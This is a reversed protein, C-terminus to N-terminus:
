RITHWINLSMVIWLSSSQSHRVMCTIILVRAKDCAQSSTGKSTFHLHHRMSGRVIFFIRLIITSYFTELKYCLM